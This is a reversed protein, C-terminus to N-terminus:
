WQWENKTNLYWDTVGNFRDAADFIRYQNFGKLSNDQPYLYSSSYLFIAPVDQAVLKQFNYYAKTRAAVNNTARATELNDDAQRNVFGALNLGPYNVQSSHWFPFPDPDAGSLIGYLLAEYRRNKIVEKIKENDLVEIEVQIGLDQWNEKVLNATQVFEPQNVTTLKITLGYNNKQRYIKQQPDIKELDATVKVLYEEGYIKQQATEEATLKKPKGGNAATQKATQDDLWAQYLEKKRKEIFEERTIIKWGDDDLKKSALKEDYVIKFDQTFGVQFPLIPGHIALGEGKLSVAVLQNKDIGSELAERLPKSRLLLNSKQNLFITSYYPLRLSHINLSKRNIKEKEDKTLFSLGNIQHNKLTEFASDQDNFFKLTFIKLYPKQGHYYPNPKLTYSKINGKSDKSFSDFMYPGAGIPKLNISSFRLNKQPIEQWLHEPIIGTTLLNTFPAFPQSLELTFTSDDIKNFIVGQFSVWLPSQTEANQISNITFGVDEITLPEGDQWKLDPKIKITYIKETKDLTFSEALDPVLNMAQDYKFLGAYMLRCLDADVQNLSSFLPNITNPYGVIGEVYEGGVAPKIVRHQLYTEVAMVGLSFIILIVLLGLTKKEQATIFKHILRLQKFAPLKNKKILGLVMKQDLNKQPFVHTQQWVKIEGYKKKTWNQFRPIFNM